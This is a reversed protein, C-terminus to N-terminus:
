KTKKTTKKKLQPIERVGNAWDKKSIRHLGTCFGTESRGCGCAKQGGNLAEFKDANKELQKGIDAKAIEAMKQKAEKSIRSMPVSALPDNDEFNTDITTLKATIVPISPDPAPFESNQFEKKLEEVVKENLKMNLEGFATPNHPKVYLILSSIFTGM